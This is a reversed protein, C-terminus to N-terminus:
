VAAVAAVAKKKAAAKKKAGRKRSPANAKARSKKKAARGGMGAAQGAGYGKFRESVRAIEDDSLIAPRGVTLAIAYLRALNELEEARFMAAALTAGTAIAGHNGLLVAHRDGLGELALESLDKTGYPAYKTCRIASGGFLAIMYHAALIPKHAMSLATAYPSHCHVIAGVDPRARMVDLHIRWETSPKLPGAWAGYEGGLPMRAIMTPRLKPYPVASPTILMAEGIRASINGSSGHTLGSNLLRMGNAVIDERLAKETTAM